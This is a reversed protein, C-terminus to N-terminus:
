SANKKQEETIEKEIDKIKDRAEAFTTISQFEQGYFQIRKLSEMAVARTSDGEAKLDDIAKKLKAQRIKELIQGEFIWGDTTKRIQAALEPYKLILDAVASASLSQGKSLTYTVQNLESVSSISVQVSERLAKTQEVLKETLEEITGSAKGNIGALADTEKQAEVAAVTVIAAAVAPSEKSTPSIALM